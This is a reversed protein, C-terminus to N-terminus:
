NKQTISDIHTSGLSLGHGGGFATVDDHDAGLPTVFAFAFQDIPQGFGGSTHHAKLAAVVCAVGQDDITHFCGQM